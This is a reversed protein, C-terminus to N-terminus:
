FVAARKMMEICHLLRLKLPIIMGRKKSLAIFAGAGHVLSFPYPTWGLLLAEKKELSPVGLCCKQLDVSEHDM